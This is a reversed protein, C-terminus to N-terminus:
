VIYKIMQTDANFGSHIEVNLRRYMKEMSVCQQMEDVKERGTVDHSPGGFTMMILLYRVAKEIVHNAYELIRCARDGVRVRVM